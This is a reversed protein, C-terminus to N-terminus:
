LQDDEFAAVGGGFGLAVLGANKPASRKSIRPMLCDTPHPDLLNMPNIYNNFWLFQPFWGVFIGCFKTLDCFEVFISSVLWKM